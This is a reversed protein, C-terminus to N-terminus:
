GSQGDYLISQGSRDLGATELLNEIDEIHAGDFV